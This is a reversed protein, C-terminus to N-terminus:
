SVEVTGKMAPHVTCKYEFTGAQDFTHEFTGSKKIESKFADGGNVDHQVGGDDWEWTVTDGTKVKITSPNFKISKLVVVGPEASTGSSSASGGNGDDGCAGLALVAVVAASAVLRRRLM